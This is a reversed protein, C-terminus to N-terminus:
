GFIALNVAAVTTVAALVFALKSGIGYSGRHDKEALACAIAASVLVMPAGAWFVALSVFGVAGLIAARRGANGAAATRVALGYAVAAVVAIIPLTVLWDSANHEAEGDNLAWFTGVATLVCSAAVGLAALLPTRSPAETVNNATTTTTPTTM